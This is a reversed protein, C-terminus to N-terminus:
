PRFRLHLQALFNHGYYTALAVFFRTCNFEIGGEVEWTATEEVNGVMSPRLEREGERSKTDKCPGLL